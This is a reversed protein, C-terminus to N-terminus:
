AAISNSREDISTTCAAVIAVKGEWSLEQGGDVGLRRTWRGDFLERLAAFIERQADRNMSLMSTFDKILIIGARGIERLLGGKADKAPDKGRTGSLLPAATLTSVAYASPGYRLSDM